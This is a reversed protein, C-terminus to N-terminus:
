EGCDEPIGADVSIPVGDACIQEPARDYHAQYFAMFAGEDFCDATLSWTWAAAGWRRELKPDPTLIVRQRPMGQAACFVDGPLEETLWREAAAVEEACGQPCNYSLVVAGHELAHVMFGHPLPRQYVRYEPWNGYHDGSTPPSTEYSVQSCVPVHTQGFNPHQTERANCVGAETLGGEGGADRAPQAEEASGCAAVSLALAMTPLLRRLTMLAM